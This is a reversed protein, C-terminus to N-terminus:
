SPCTLAPVIWWQELPKDVFASRSPSYKQTIETYKLALGRNEVLVFNGTVRYLIPWAKDQRKCNM